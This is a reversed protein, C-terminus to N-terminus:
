VVFEFLKHYSLLMEINVLLMASGYAVLDILFIASIMKSSIKMRM